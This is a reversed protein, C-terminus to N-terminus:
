RAVVLRYGADYEDLALLHRYRETWAGGALDYALRALGDEFGSLLRFSSSGARVQPDLYAEPRRWFAYLFGDICDHPIPVPSVTVDGLTRRYLDMTPMQRADLERLQPFYDGLWTGPHAPDFTLVVVPGRAVRRMEALGRPQDSWHHVTLVAMAADFADDPFPLGM